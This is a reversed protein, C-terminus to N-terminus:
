QGAYHGFVESFDVGVRARTETGDAADALVGRRWANGAGAAVGWVGVIGGRDEIVPVV